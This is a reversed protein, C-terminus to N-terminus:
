STNAEKQVDNNTNKEKAVELLLVALNLAADPISISQLKQGLEQRKERDDLLMGVSRELEATSQKFNAEDVAVVAQKEVLNKANELQHGGTLLPNPVVVCAKGQVGLEALTNAGARTVVVDAAGTYRHMPQLFELVILRDHKYQGYTGANGKGAQHIITLDEYGDLLKPSVERFAENLRRAGMSGGTILLLRSSTPIQLEQKFRNQAEATVPRYADGVLVGTFRMSESPYSYFEPPMGTAHIRAWKGVIRNALGPMADSDHTVIPIKKKAALGVPVGVFGGKLFVVDPKIERLLSKAQLTGIAVYFIDRINLFITKIDFIRRLWSEGHYRRFKGARITRIDDFVGTDKSLDAFKSGKEGVYTIHCDPQLKKLEHAVALLPTIHGGTGGGTLLIKM